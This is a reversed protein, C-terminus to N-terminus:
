TTSAAGNLLGLDALLKEDSLYSRSEVILGDRIRVLVAWPSLREGKSHLEGLLAVRGSGIQRAESVVVDYTERSATMAAWWERVGAHGVHPRHGFLSAPYSVVNGDMVALMATLDRDQYARVYREAVRIMADGDAWAEIARDPLDAM